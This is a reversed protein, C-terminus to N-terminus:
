VQDILMGAARWGILISPANTNGTTISPMISADAIRLGQVGYVRLQPDVVSMADVGMRCTSTPHFFTWVSNRLFNRYSAPDNAQDGPLIEAQRIDNYAASNGIARALDISAKYAKFDQDTGLYNPDIIPDVRPDSSALTISGRSHPRVVGSLISYVNPAKIPLQPTAFPLSVYLTNIDPGPLASDSKSWMYVESENYNSPPVPAKAQWNAGAGLPHDQLNQGVGPLNVVVPIGHRRLQQAPGLGSLMLLWPTAVAGASVIVEKGALVKVPKGAHLYEVGVCNGNEIILKIVPAKTLVTLNPRSEMAPKLFAVATSQRKGDYITFNVWAPGELKPGNFDAVQPYGLSVAGEIFAAAGPHGQAPDPQTVHLPGGVGRYESAGGAFDELAKYDPLVSQYDWGANGEYAWSDYDTHHGRCFIMANVSSCGGLVNARPWDISRGNLATQPTTKFHHVFPLGLTQPWDQPAHIEPAADPGGAELVLIKADTSQALRGALAGGSSGAGIIIYDFPGPPVDTSDSTAAFARGSAALSLSQAAGLSLGAAVARAIFGRRDIGGSRYQTLATDVDGREFKSPM